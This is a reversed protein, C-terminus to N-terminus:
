LLHRFHLAANTMLLNIAIPVIRLRIHLLTAATIRAIGETHDRSTHSIDMLEDM